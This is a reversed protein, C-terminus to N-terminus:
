RTRINLNQQPLDHDYPNLLANVTELTGAEDLVWYSAGYIDAGTGPLTATETQSFDCNLLERGFYILNGVSLDTTVNKRFLEALKQIDSFGISDLCQGAITQLFEQQVSCRAIDAMPYGRYRCLQLAQEGDLHQQGAKLDIFLDQSPDEYYMDEPVDYDVGGVLDVLEVFADLRVLLYGDVRFGLMQELVDVLQEMGAERLGGYAYISNLKVASGTKPQSCLSDRPVSVLATSHDNTNLRAIIMTDTRMGDGDVGCLLINYFGERHSLPVEVQYSQGTQEDVQEVVATPQEAQETAARKPPRVMCLYLLVLGMVLCVLAGLGVLLIKEGLSLEREGRLLRQLRGGSKRKPADHENAM